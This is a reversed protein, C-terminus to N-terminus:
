MGWIGFRDWDSTYPDANYIIAGADSTAYNSVLYGTSGLSFEIISVGDDVVEGDPDIEYIQKIGAPPGLVKVQLGDVVVYNDDGSQNTQNALLTDGTTSNLLYW